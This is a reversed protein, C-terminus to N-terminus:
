VVKVFESVEWAINDLQWRRNRTSHQHLAAQGDEQGEEGGGWLPNTMTSMPLPMSKTPDM